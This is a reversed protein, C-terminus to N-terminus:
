NNWAQTIFDAGRESDVIVGHNSNSSMLQPKIGVDSVLLREISRIQSDVIDRGDNGLGM